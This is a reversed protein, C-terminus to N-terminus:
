RSAGAPPELLVPARESSLTPRLVLASVLLVPILVALAGAALGHMRRPPDHRARWDEAGRAVAVWRWLVLPWLLLIGPVLLPRFAYAGRANPEVRDIGFALFAAAVAAGAWLWIEGAM